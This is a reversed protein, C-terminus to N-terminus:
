FIGGGEEVNNTESLRLKKNVKKFLINEINFFFNYRPFM